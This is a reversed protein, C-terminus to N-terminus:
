IGRKGKRLRDGMDKLGYPDEREKAGAKFDEEAKLEAMKTHYADTQEETMGETKTRGNLIKMIEERGLAGLLASITFVGMAAIGSYEVNLKFYFLSVFFTVLGLILGILIIKLFKKLKGM